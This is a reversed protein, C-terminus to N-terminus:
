NIYFRTFDYVRKNGARFSVISICHIITPIRLVDFVRLIQWVDVNSVTLTTKETNETRYVSCLDDYFQFYFPGFVLSCFFFLFCYVILNKIPRLVDFCLFYVNSM